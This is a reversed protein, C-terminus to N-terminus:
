VPICSSGVVVTVNPLNSTWADSNSACVTPSTANSALTYSQESGGCLTFTVINPVAENNTITLNVCSSVPVPVPTPSVPVPVPIPIPIPVPLPTPIPSETCTGNNGSIGDGSTRNMGYSNEVCINSNSIGAGLSLTTVETSGCYKFQWVSGATGGSIDYSTCGSSVPVPTPTTPVPTPAVPIPTPSVPTPVTPIEVPVPLSCNLILNPYYADCGTDNVNRVGIEYTGNAVGTFVNSSQWSTVGTIRYQLIYNNPNNVTVTVTSNNNSICSTNVATISLVCTPVPVLVPLPIPTPVTCNLMFVEAAQTCGLKSVTITYENNGSASTFTVVGSTFSQFRETNDGTKKVSITYPSSGGTINLNLTAM